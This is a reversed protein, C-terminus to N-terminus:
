SEDRISPPLFAALAVLAAALALKAAPENLRDIEAYLADVVTDPVVTTKGDAGIRTADDVTRAWQFVWTRFAEAVVDLDVENPDLRTM